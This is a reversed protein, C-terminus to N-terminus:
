TSFLFRVVESGPPSTIIYLGILLMVFIIFAPWFIARDTLPSKEHSLRKDLKNSLM